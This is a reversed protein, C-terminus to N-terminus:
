VDHRGGGQEHGAIPVHLREQICVNQALVGALIDAATLFQAMTAALVSGGFHRRSSSTPCGAAALTVAITYASDSVQMPEKAL